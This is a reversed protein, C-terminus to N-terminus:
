IYKVALHASLYDFSAIFQCFYATIIIREILATYQIHVTQLFNKGTKEWVNGNKGSRERKPLKLCTQAMQERKKGFTGLRSM